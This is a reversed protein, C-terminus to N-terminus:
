RYWEPAIERISESSVFGITNYVGVAWAEIDVIVNNDVLDDYIEEFNFTNPILRTYGGIGEQLEIVVARTDVEEVVPICIRLSVKVETPLIHEWGEHVWYPGKFEQNIAQSQEKTSGFQNIMSSWPKPIDVKEAVAAAQIKNGEDLLELFRIIATGLFLKWRVERWTEKEPATEFTRFAERVKEM